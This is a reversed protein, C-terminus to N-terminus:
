SKAVLSTGSGQGEDAGTIRVRGYTDLQLTSADYGHFRCLPMILGTKLFNRKAKAQQM